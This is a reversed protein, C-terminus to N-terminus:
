SRTNALSTVVLEELRKALLQHGGFKFHMFDLEGEGGLATADKTGWLEDPVLRELNSFVVGPRNALREVESKFSSYEEAAYPIEVGGRLPAVYLVVKIGNQTAAELIATLAAMNDRYRGPIMRRKSSPKIGFLTNRLRYLGLFLQGRIEPRAQWLQSHKDLWMTLGREAREQLTNAIGATENDTDKPMVGGHSRRQASRTGNRLPQVIAKGRLLM